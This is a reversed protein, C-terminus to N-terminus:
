CDVPAGATSHVARTSGPAICVTPRAALGTTTLDNDLYHQLCTAHSAFTPEQVTTRGPHIQVRGNVQFTALPACCVPVILPLDM